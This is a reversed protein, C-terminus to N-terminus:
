RILLYLLIQCTFCDCCIYQVIFYQGWLTILSVNEWFASSGQRFMVPLTNYDNIGFQKLLEMKEFTQTGQCIFTNLFSM